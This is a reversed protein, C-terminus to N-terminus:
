SPVTDAGNFTAKSLCGKKSSLTICFATGLIDPEKYGGGGGGRPVPLLFSTRKKLQSGSVNTANQM